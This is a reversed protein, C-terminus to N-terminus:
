RMDDARPLRALIATLSETVPGGTSVTQWDTKQPARALQGALVDADADSAGPDRTELRAHLAEPDAQLWFGDFPVGAAHAARVIRARDEARDHVADAIVTVRDALLAEARRAIGAYVRASVDPSYADAPLPQDPATDFMAKRTRDSSIVRAGPAQGLHPALAAAITSKGSGSLGGVAVLRAARTDLLREALDFYAHAEAALGTDGEASGAQTAKVHARVAARLAMFFPLLGYGDEQGATDCYRNVVQSAAAELGRHWLDMALFALDYLVDVTALADNFELCDFLRVKGDYLCINRLHLDGHCRRVHGARARTDLRAAHTSLAAEFAADLRAIDAEAFLTSERFAQANVRLVSAINDAGRAEPAVPADAHFASIEHALADLHASTLAGRQAMADFVLDQDFRRMEVVADLLPGTGDFEAGQAGGTVRRVGLYLEPATRRNLHLEKECAALRQDPTSFDLYPLHLARKLKFVRAGTLFLHSIHTDIRAVAADTGHTMPDALFAKVAAQTDDDM